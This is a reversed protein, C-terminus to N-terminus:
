ANGTLKQFCKLNINLEIIQPLLVGLEAPIAVVRFVVALEHM